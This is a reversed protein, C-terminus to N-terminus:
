NGNSKLRKSKQLCLKFDKSLDTAFVLHGEVQKDQQNAKYDPSFKFPVNNIEQNASSYM